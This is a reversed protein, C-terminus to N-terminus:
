DQPIQTENSKYGVCDPDYCKQVYNRKELDVVLYIHNSKHQRDINGCYKNGVITYILHKSNGNFQVVNKITGTRCQSKENFDNLIWDDIFPFPSSNTQKLQNGIKSPLSFSRHPSSINSTTNTTSSSSKPSTQLPISIFKLPKLTQPPIQKPEQEKQQQNLLHPTTTHSTLSTTKVKESHISNGIIDNIIRTQDSKEFNTILSKLFIDKNLSHNIDEFKMQNSDSVILPILKSLKSSLYTRMSKNRGYVALDAFFQPTKGDSNWVYLRRFRDYQSAISTSTSDYDMNTGSGTPLCLLSLSSVFEGVIQNNEFIVNEIRILVHRSFKETSTSDLELMNSRQIEISFRKKLELRVLDFLLDVLIQGDRIDSNSDFYFELDFYLHCNCNERIIEYFHRDEPKTKKWYFDWFKDM